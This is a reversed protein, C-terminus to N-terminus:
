TSRENLLSSALFRYCAKDGLLGDNLGSLRRGVFVEQCCKSSRMKVDKLIKSPRLPSSLAAYRNFIQQVLVNLLNTPMERLLQLTDWVSVLESGLVMTYCDANQIEQEIRAQGLRLHLVLNVISTLPDIDGKVIRSPRNRKRM